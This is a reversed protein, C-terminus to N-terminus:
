YQNIMTAGDQKSKFKRVRQAKNVCSLRRSPIKRLPQASKGFISDTDKSMLNLKPKPKQHKQWNSMMDVDKIDVLKEHFIQGQRRGRAGFTPMIGTTKKTGLPSKAFNDMKNLFMTNHSSLM